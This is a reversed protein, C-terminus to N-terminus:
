WVGPLLRWRVRNAYEAYGPLERRLTREELMVRVALVALLFGFPVFAWLSGLLLLASGYFVIVGAYGPHRIRRYPGDSVVGLDINAMDPAASVEGTGTLTLKRRDDEASAIQPALVMALAALFFLAPRM